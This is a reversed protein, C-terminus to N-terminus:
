LTISSTKEGVVFVYEKSTEIDNGKTTYIAEQGAIKKLQGVSGSHKGKTLFIAAGPQLTFVKQVKLGPLELLLTDGVVAKQSVLINKGDHLHFQIKGGPLVTKGIIKCPKFTSEAAPIEKVIIRGKTDLVVRYSKKLLPISLVDFLGILLRHDTRRRGDVLIQQSSLLKQVEAATQAVNLIDRLILGLPLGFEFPHGSSRPRMTFKGRIRPLIWSKPANVSKLHNKM